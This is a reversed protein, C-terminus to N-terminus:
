EDDEDVSGVEKMTNIMFKSVNFKCSLRCGVGKLQNGDVHTEVNKKCTICDFLFAKKSKEIFDRQSKMSRKTFASVNQLEVGCNRCMVEETEPNLGGDTTGDSEKCGPNCRLLM